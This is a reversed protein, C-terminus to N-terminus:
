RKEKEKKTKSNLYIWLIYYDIQNTTFITSTLITCTAKTIIIIFRPDVVM